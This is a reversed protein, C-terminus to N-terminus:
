RLLKSTNFTVLRYLWMLGTSTVRGMELMDDLVLSATEPMTVFGRNSSTVLHCFSVNVKYFLDEVLHVATRIPLLGTLHNLFESLADALTM